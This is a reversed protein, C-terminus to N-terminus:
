AWGIAARGRELYIYEAKGSLPHREHRFNHHDMTSGLYEWCHGNHIYLQDGNYPQSQGATGVNGAM